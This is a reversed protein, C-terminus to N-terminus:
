VVVSVECCEVDGRVGIRHHKSANDGGGSAHDDLFGGGSDGGSDPASSQSRNDVGDHGSFHVRHRLQLGGPGSEGGHGVGEELQLGLSSVRRQGRVASVHGVGVDLRQGVVDDLAVVVVHHQDVHTLGCLELGAVNGAGDVDGDLGGGASEMEGGLLKLAGKAEGLGVDVVLEDEVALGAHPGGLGLRKGLGAAVLHSGVVGTGVLVPDSM